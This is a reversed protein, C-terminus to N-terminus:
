SSTNGPHSTPSHSLLALFLFHLVSSTSPLAGHLVIVWGQPHSQPVTRPCGLATLVLFCPSQIGAPPPHSGSKPFRNGPRALKACAFPRAEQPEDELLSIHNKAAPLSCVGVSTALTCSCTFLDLLILSSCEPQRGAPQYHCVIFSHIITLTIDKSLILCYLLSGKAM